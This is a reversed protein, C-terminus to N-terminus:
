AAHKHADHRAEHQHHHHAEDHGEAYKFYDVYAALYDRAADLDALAFHRKSRAIDFRRALESRREAAVLALVPGLDGSELAADAALVVPEVHAGEPQIGTFGVGEALRHLRIMTELFLRDAVYAADPGLRRVAQGRSFVDRLEPEDAAPIWKLAYMVDGTEIARRGDLVAPGGATDCHAHADSVVLARLRRLVTTLM